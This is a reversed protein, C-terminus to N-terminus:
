NPVDATTRSREIWNTGDYYFTISRNFGTAPNTFAAMKFVVNWTIVGLAGGSTNRITITLMRATVPSTPANITFATGNTATITHIEGASSNITISAGYTDVVLVPVERKETNLEVIASQVNTASISGTPTFAVLNATSIGSIANQVDQLRAAESPSVPEPLNIIRQGNMDLTNQMQNPEGVPNNRYLVKNQMEDEIKDFNDNIVSLANINTVDNLVLKSM